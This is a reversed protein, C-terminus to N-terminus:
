KAFFFVSFSWIMFLSYVRRFLRASLSGLVDMSSSNWFSILSISFTSSAANSTVSSGRDSRARKNSFNFLMTLPRYKKRQRLQHHILWILSTLETPVVEVDNATADVGIYIIHRPGIEDSVWSDNLGKQLMGIIFVECFIKYPPEASAEPLRKKKEKM